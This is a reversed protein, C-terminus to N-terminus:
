ARQGLGLVDHRGHRRGLRLQQLQVAAAAAVEPRTRGLGRGHGAHVLGLQRVAADHATPAHHGRGHHEVRVPPHFHLHPILHSQPITQFGGFRKCLELEPM